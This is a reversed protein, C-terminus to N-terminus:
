LSWKRGYNYRYKEQRILTCLFLSIAPANKFKPYLVTSGWQGPGYSISFWDRAIRRRRRCMRYPTTPQVIRRKHLNLIPTKALRLRSCNEFRLDYSAGVNPPADNAYVVALGM